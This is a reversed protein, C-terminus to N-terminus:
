YNSILTLLPVTVRSLKLRIMDFNLYYTVYFPIKPALFLLNEIEYIEFVVVMKFLMISSFNSLIM